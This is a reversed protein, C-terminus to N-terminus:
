AICFGRLGPQPDACILHHARLSARESHTSKMSVHIGFVNWENLLLESIEMMSFRLLGKDKSAQAYHLVILM